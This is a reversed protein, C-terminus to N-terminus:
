TWIFNKNLSRPLPKLRRLLDILLIYSQNFNDYFM